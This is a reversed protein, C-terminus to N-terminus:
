GSDIEGQLSQPPAWEFETRGGAPVQKREERHYDGNPSVIVCTKRFGEQIDGVVHESQLLWLRSVPSATQVTASGFKSSELRVDGNVYAALAAGKPVTIDNGQMLLFLPAVPFFLIGTAVIGATMGAVHSGGKAEKVARIPAKGNDALRVYDLVIELKGARGMRRKSQAETVTGVAVSGKSIVLIGSVAVDELVEFDVSDGVHADASSVNRILRLLVPTADHLIFQGPLLTTERDNAQPASAQQKAADQSEVTLVSQFSGFLLLSSAGLSLIQKGV